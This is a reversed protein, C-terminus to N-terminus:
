IQLEWGSIKKLKKIDQISPYRLIKLCGWTTQSLSNQIYELVNIFLEKKNSFFPSIHGGGGGRFAVHRIYM